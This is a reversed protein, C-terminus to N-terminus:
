GVHLATPLWGHSEACLVPSVVRCPLWGHSEACLVPSVVSLLHRASHSWPVHHRNEESPHSTLTPLMPHAPRVVGCASSSACWSLHLPHVPLGGLLRGWAVACVRQCSLAACVTLGRWCMSHVQRLASNAPAAPVAAEHAGCTRSWSTRSNRPTSPPWPPYAAVRTVRHHLAALAGFRHLANVVKDSLAVAVDARAACLKGNACCSRQSKNRPFILCRRPSTVRNPVEVVLCFPQPSGVGVGVARM